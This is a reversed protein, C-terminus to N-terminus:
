FLDVNDERESNFVEETKASTVIQIDLAERKGVFLKSPFKMRLNEHDRKIDILRNQVRAFEARLGSISDGLEKYLETSFNPSQEQIWKFAPNNGSDASYRADMLGTYIEKFEGAYKDAIQAKMQVVKWTKDYINKNAEQQAVSQNRLEVERNKYGIGMVTLILAVVIIVAIIVWVAIKHM